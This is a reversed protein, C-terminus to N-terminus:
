RKYTKYSLLQNLLPQSVKYKLALEEQTIGGDFYEKRIKEAEEFTFKRRAYGGGRRDKRETRPISM